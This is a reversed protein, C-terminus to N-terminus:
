GLMMRFRFIRVMAVKWRTGRSVLNQAVMIDSWIFSPNHGVKPLLFDGRRFYRAKLNRCVLALPDSVVRWGIKALLAVNFLHLDLFGHGGMEKRVCIKEWRM